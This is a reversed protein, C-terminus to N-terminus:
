EAGLQHWLARCDDNAAPTIGAVLQPPVGLPGGARPRQVPLREQAHRDEGDEVHWEFFQEALAERVEAGDVQGRRGPEGAM